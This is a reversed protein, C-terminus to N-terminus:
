HQMLLVHRLVLLHLCRSSHTHSPGAHSPSPGESRRIPGPQNSCATIWKHQYAADMSSESTAVASHSVLHLASPSCAAVAPFCRNFLTRCTLSSSNCTNGPCCEANEGGCPDNDDDGTVVIGNGNGGSIVVREGQLLHRSADGQFVLGNGDSARGMDDAIAPVVAAALALATAM